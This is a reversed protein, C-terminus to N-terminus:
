KSKLRDGSFVQDALLMGRYTHPHGHQLFYIKVLMFFFIRSEQTTYESYDYDDDPLPQPLGDKSTFLLDGHVSSQIQISIEEGEHACGTVLVSSSLDDPLVGTFICYDEDTMAIEMVRGDVWTLTFVLGTLTAGTVSLPEPTVLPPNTTATVPPETTKTPPPQTTPPQTTTTSFWGKCGEARGLWMVAYSLGLLTKNPHLM